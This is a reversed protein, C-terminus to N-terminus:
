PPLVPENLPRCTPVAGIGNAYSNRAPRWLQDMEPTRPNALLHRVGTAFHVQAGACDYPAIADGWGLEATAGLFHVAYPLQTLDYKQDLTAARAYLDEGAKRGEPTTASRVELSGLDRLAISEDSPNHAASLALQLMRRATEYDGVNYLGQSLTTLEGTTASTGLRLALESAIRLMTNVQAVILTTTPTEFATGKYKEYAEANKVELDQISQVAAALQQEEDHIDKRYDIVATAISTVLSLAFAAVAVQLSYNRWFPEAPKAAMEKLRRIEEASFTPAAGEAREPSTDKADTM